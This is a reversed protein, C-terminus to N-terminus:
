ANTRTGARPDEERALGLNILLGRLVPMLFASLFLAAFGFYGPLPAAPRLAHDLALAPVVFLLLCIVYGTTDFLFRTRGDFLPSPDDAFHKVVEGGFNSLTAGAFGIAGVTAITFPEPVTCAACGATTAGSGVGVTLAGAIARRWPFPPRPDEKKKPM